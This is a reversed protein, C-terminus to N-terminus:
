ADWVKGLDLALHLTTSSELARALTSANMGEWRLLDKWMRM